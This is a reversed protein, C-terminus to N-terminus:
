VEPCGALLQGKLPQCARSSTVFGPLISGGGKFYRSADKANGGAGMESRLYRVRVLDM